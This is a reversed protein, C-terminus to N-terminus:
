NRKKLLCLRARWTDGRHTRLRRYSTTTKEARESSAIRHCYRWLYALMTLNNKRSQECKPSCIELLYDSIWIWNENHVVCKTSVRYHHWCRKTAVHVHILQRRHSNLLLLHTLLHGITIFVNLYRVCQLIRSNSILNATTQSWLRTMYTTNNAVKLKIFWRSMEKLETYSYTVPM